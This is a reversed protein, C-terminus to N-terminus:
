IYDMITNMLVKSSTQLSATYVTQMVAYEMTKETFDIDESSSLIDTMNYNQDENTEMASEMRNQMTGVQARNALLNQVISDMKSLGEGNVYNLAAEKEADTTAGTKDSMKGLNNILTSIENMVNIDGLKTDTFEFIDTATKNYEVVVGQSIETKLSTSLQSEANTKDNGTSVDPIAPNGFGNGNKDAYALNGNSDVTVPKSTGKTGGFIYAGDFTTNMIQALEKSKEVVENKITAIEDESYAGNGAKVMLEKIRAMVNGAQALATDTTDLWNSTDKINSNYQENDSIQNALQKNRTAAFPNQSTRLIEKGSALQNQLTSMNNLNRKMNSLFKSTMMSNTIRQM